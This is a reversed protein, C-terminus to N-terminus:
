LYFTPTKESLYTHIDYFFFWLRKKFFALMELKEEHKQEIISFKMKLHLPELCIELEVTNKTKEM